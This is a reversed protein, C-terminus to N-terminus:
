GIYLCENLVSGFTDSYMEHGEPTTPNDRTGLCSLLMLAEKKSVRLWTESSGFKPQVYVEKAQKLARLLASRSDLKENM